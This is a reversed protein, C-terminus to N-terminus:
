VRNHDGRWNKIAMKIEKSSTLEGDLVRRVLEHLEEDSAFRLAIVRGAPLVCARMALDPPLIQGYRLSEELRIVRDQARLAQVRAAVSMLIFVLSLIVLFGRDWNPDQYMRVSQFILNIILLPSIIFHVLPHWRVHNSYNQQDSM